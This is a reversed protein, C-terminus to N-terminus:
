SKNTKEFSLNFRGTDGSLIYQCVGHKKMVALTQDLSKNFTGEATNGALKSHLDEVREFLDEHQMLYFFVVEGLSDIENCINAELKSLRRGVLKQPQTRGNGEIVARCWGLKELSNITKRLEENFRRKPLTSGTIGQLKELGINIRKQSALFRYIAKGVDGRIANRVNLDQYTYSRQLWHVMVPPFQVYLVSDDEMTEHLVDVIKTTFTQSRIVSNVKDSIKTFELNVSALRKLSEQRAKRSKGDNGKKLFRQIESITTFLVHVNSDEQNESWVQIPDQVAVPLQAPRGKLQLQRLGLLAILTDEDFISLQAGFKRGTGHGTEFVYAGDQDIKDKPIGGRKVPTFIPVRTFITPTEGGPTLPYSTFRGEKESEFLSLQGKEILRRSSLGRKKRPSIKNDVEVERTKRLDDARKIIPVLAQDLLENDGSM